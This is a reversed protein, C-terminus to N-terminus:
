GILNAVAIRLRRMTLHDLKKLIVGVGFGVRYYLSATLGITLATTRSRIL